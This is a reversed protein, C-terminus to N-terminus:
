YRGSDLRALGKQMSGKAVGHNVLFLLLFLLVLYLAAYPLEPISMKSVFLFWVPGLNILILGAALLMFVLNGFGVALQSTSEWDFRAFFSGMGVALGVLGYSTIWSSVLNIAIEAADSGVALAGITSVLSAIIAVPLYWSWFKTKVYERLGLPSALIMWYARGELSISPFVFRTCLSSTIFACICYNTIITFRKWWGADSGTMSNFGVFVRLNYLYILFIGVLLMVQALQSLDRVLVKIDKVVLGRQRPAIAGFARTIWGQSTLSQIRKGGSFNSAQALTAFHLSRVCLYSASICILAGSYLLGLYVTAGKPSPELFERFAQSVWYSPLWRVDAISFASVVRLLEPTNNLGTFGLNLVSLAQYIGWLILVLVAFLIWRARRAPILRLILTAVLLAISAPIIFYPLVILLVIPIFRVGMGFRSSYALIVPSLFVLPMWASSLAVQILKGFYLSRFRLPSSLLLDLDDSLYLEGAATVIGSVLLMFMLIAFILGLPLTYNLFAASSVQDTLRFMWLMGRYILVMLGIAFLLLVGDRFLLKGRADSKRWRNRSGMLLPVLTIPVIM